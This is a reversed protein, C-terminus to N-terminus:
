FFLFGCVLILIIIIVWTFDFGYNDQFGDIAGYERNCCNDRRVFGM